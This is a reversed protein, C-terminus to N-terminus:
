MRGLLRHHFDRKYGPSVTCMVLNYLGNMQHLMMLKESKIYEEIIKSGIVEEMDLTTMNEFSQEKSWDLIRNTITRKEKANSTTRTKWYETHIRNIDEQSLDYGSRFVIDPLEQPSGKLIYYKYRDIDRVASLSYASNGRGKGTGRIEPMARYLRERLAQIKIDTRIWGQFHPRICEYTERAICYSGDITGLFNGIKSRTSDDLDHIRIAITTAM